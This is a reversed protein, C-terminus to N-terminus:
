RPSAAPAPEHDTTGGTIYICSEPEYLKAVFNSRPIQMNGVESWRKEICQTPDYMQITSIPAGGAETYGGLIYIKGNYTVLEAGAVPTPMTDFIKWTWDGASLSVSLILIFIYTILRKLM